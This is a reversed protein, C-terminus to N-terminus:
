LYLFVKFCEQHLFRTWKLQRWELSQIYAEEHTGGFTTRQLWYLPSLALIYILPPASVLYVNELCFLISTGSFM